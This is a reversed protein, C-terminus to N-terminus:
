TPPPPKAIHILDSSISFPTNFSHSTRLHRHTLVLHLHLHHTSYSSSYVKPSWFGQRTSSPVVSAVLLPPSPSFSANSGALEGRSLSALSTSNDAPKAGGSSLETHRLPELSLSHSSFATAAARACMDLCDDLRGVEVKDFRRVCVCLAVVWCWGLVSAVMDLRLSHADEGRGRRLPAATHCGAETVAAPIRQKRSDHFRVRRRVWATSRHVGSADLPSIRTNGVHTRWDADCGGGGSEGAMGRDGM